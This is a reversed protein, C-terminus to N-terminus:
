SEESAVKSDTSDTSTQSYGDCKTFVKTNLILHIVFTILTGGALIVTLWFGVNKGPCTSTDPCDFFTQTNVVIIAVILAALTLFVFVMEIWTMQSPTNSNYINLMVIIFLFINAGIICGIAIWNDDDEQTENFLTTYVAKSNIEYSAWPVFLVIIGLISGMSSITCATSNLFTDKDYEELNVVILVGFLLAVALITYVIQSFTFYQNIESVDDWEKIMTWELFLCCIVFLFHLIFTGGVLAKRATQNKIDLKFISFTFSLIAFFCALVTTGILGKFQGQFENSVVDDYLQFINKYELNTLFETGEDVNAKYCWSVTALVQHVLIIYTFFFWAKHTFPADGDIKFYEVRGDGENRCFNFDLCGM